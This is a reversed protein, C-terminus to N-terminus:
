YRVRVGVGLVKVLYRVRIDVRLGLGLVKTQCGVKM